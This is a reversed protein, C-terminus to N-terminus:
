VPDFSPVSIIFTAGEGPVSEVTLEGGHDRIIKQAIALGLGTGNEKKFSRFPEFIQFQIEQPIGPGTDRFEINILDGARKATIYINGSEGMADCANKAIQFCVQYFADKDVKIMIDNEIKKYLTVNRSEVYEALLSLSNDMIERLDYESLHLKNQNETYALTFQLFNVITDAQDMLVNLVTKIETSINKKKIQSAYYKMTLVPTQINETIFKTLTPLNINKKSEASRKVMNLRQLTQSVHPLLYLMKDEDTVRFKGSSSNALCIVAITENFDGPVPICILSAGVVGRISDIDESYRFDKMPERINIIEGTVAATGTLGRDIPFSVTIYGNETFLETTLLKKTDDVLYLMGAQAETLKVAENIIIAHVAREDKGSNIKLLADLIKDSNLGTDDYKLKEEEAEFEEKEKEAKDEPIVEEIAEEEVEGEANFWRIKEEDTKDNASIDIHPEAATEPIIEVPSEANIETIEEDPIKEPSKYETVDPVAESEEVDIEETEVNEDTDSVEFAEIIENIENPTDTEEPSEELIEEQDHNIENAKFDPERAIEMELLADLESDILQKENEHSIEEELTEESPSIQESKEVAAKEEEAYREQSEVEIISEIINEKRPHLYIKDTDKKLLENHITLQLEPIEVKNYAIINDNLEPMSTLLQRLQNKSIQYLICDTNAVAASRRYTEELVEIDGFFDKEVKNLKISKNEIYVKIKVRGAIVLYTYKSEDGKQFVIEGEKMKIINDNQFQMNLKQAPIGDFLKNNKIVEQYSNDPM